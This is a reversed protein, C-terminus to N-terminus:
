DLTGFILIRHHPKSSDRADIKCMAQHNVEIHVGSINSRLVHFKKRASCLELVKTLQVREVLSTKKLDITKPQPIEELDPDLGDLFVFIVYHAHHSCEGPAHLCSFMHDMFYHTLLDSINLM